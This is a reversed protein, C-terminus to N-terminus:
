TRAKTSLAAIFMPTCTDKENITEEHYLHSIFVHFSAWCPENNSFHLDLSGHPTVKCQDSHGDHFLRCVIIAPSSTCFLSGKASNITIYIPIAMISFLIFTGKFVLFLVVMCAHMSLQKLWTQSRAVRHVTAWWAVGDMPNELCSYQLPNGHGGGPSRGSM